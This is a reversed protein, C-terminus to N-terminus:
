RLHLNKPPIKGGLHSAATVDHGGFCVYKHLLMVYLDNTDDLWKQVAFGKILGWFGINQLPNSVGRFTDRGTPDNAGWRICPEKGFPNVILEATKTCSM